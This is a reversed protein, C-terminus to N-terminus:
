NYYETIEKAPFIKYERELFALVGDLLPQLKADESDGTIDLYSKLNELTIM